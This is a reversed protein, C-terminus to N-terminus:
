DSGSAANRDGDSNGVLEEVDKDALGNIEQIRQFIRELAKAGKEALAAADGDAFLRSGASDCLAMVAMKAKMGRYDKRETAQVAMQEFTDRQAGSMPKLYVAGGWEPVALRVPTLDVASLIAAKDLFAETM